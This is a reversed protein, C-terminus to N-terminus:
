NETLFKETFIDKSQVIKQLFHIHNKSTKKLKELCETVKGIKCSKGSLWAENIYASSNVVIFLAMM